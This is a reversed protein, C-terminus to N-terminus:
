KVSNVPSLFAVRKGRYAVLHCVLQGHQDFQMACFFVHFITQIVNAISEAARAFVVHGSHQGHQRTFEENTMFDPNLQCDKRGARVPVYNWLVPTRLLCEDDCTSGANPDPNTAYSVRLITGGVSQDPNAVFSVIM